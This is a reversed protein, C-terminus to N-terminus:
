ANFFIKKDIKKVQANKSRLVDILEANELQLQQFDIPGTVKCSLFINISDVFVTIGKTPM